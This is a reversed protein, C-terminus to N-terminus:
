LKKFKIKPIVWNQHRNVRSFHINGFRIASDPWINQPPKENFVTGYFSLTEAYFDKFKPKEEAGKTPGHHIDRGLTSKCFDIWYSETYLLHLHWVQDVQDSPTQAKNSICILFIFKKYELIAELAYAITWDNERALRDSFTFSSEPDDFEFNQIKDWLLQQDVTM